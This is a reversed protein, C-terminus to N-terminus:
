LKGGRVRGPLLLDLVRGYVGHELPERGHPERRHGAVRFEIRAHMVGQELGQILVDGGLGPHRVADM